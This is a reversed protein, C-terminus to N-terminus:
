TFSRQNEINTQIYKLMEMNAGGASAILFLDMDGNEYPTDWAADHSKETLEGFSLGTNEALSREICEIDTASLYELNAERKATIFKHRFVELESKVDREISIYPKEGRVFKVVDYLFSPVPGNPMAIYTDGTITRGYESLHQKEAFYLIKFLKHIDCNKVRGTIYLCSEVSKDIDLMFNMM